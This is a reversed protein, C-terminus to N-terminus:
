RVFNGQHFRMIELGKKEYIRSGSHDVGPVILLRHEIDLSKLFATWELNNHFNFGKSGVYALINLKPEPSAAYERARDWTNAGKIFKLNENEWGGSLSVRKESLHGGGGPAASVFLEPYKFMIRATGRGGQSFGEIARGERKGITRYNADIHPILEKVFVWEGYSGIQPMDYHSVRGGNVFVYITPAIAGSAQAKHIFTALKVSKLESGPRGGHLYYVVPYRASQADESSYDAPLYICYGVDVGMSPSRFTKHQVGTPLAGKPKNVWKFPPPTKKKRSAAVTKSNADSKDKTQAEAVHATSLLRAVVGAMILNRM